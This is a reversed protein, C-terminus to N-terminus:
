VAITGTWYQAINIVLDLNRFGMNIRTVAGCRWRQQGESVPAISHPYHSGLNASRPYPAVNAKFGYHTGFRFNVLAEAV